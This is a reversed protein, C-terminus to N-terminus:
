KLTEYPISEILHQFLNLMVNEAMEGMVVCDRYNEKVHGEFIQVNAYFFFSGEEGYVELPTTIM